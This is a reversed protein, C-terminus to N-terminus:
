REKKLWDWFSKKMWGQRNKVNLECIFISGSEKVLPSLRAYLQEPTSNSYHIWTMRNIRYWDLSKNMFEDVRDDTVSPLKNIYIFYFSAM